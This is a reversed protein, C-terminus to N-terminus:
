VRGGDLLRVIAEAHRRVEADRAARGEAQRQRHRAVRCRGSCTERRGTLPRGCIPCGPSELGSPANTVAPPYPLAPAPM